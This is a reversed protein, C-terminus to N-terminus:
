KRSWSDICELLERKFNEYSYYGATNKIEDIDWYYLGAVKLAHILDAKNPHELFGHIYPTILELPGGEAVCVSPKGSAMAELPVLGFDEDISLAVIGKSRAYLDILQDETVSGLFKVNDPATDRLYEYGPYIVGAVILQEDPLERFIEILLDTRKWKDVRQVALWYNQAPENRYKEIHVCPYIVRSEVGYTKYVRNRVNHSIVAINHICLKVFLRDIPRLISSLLKIHFPVLYRMDYFARRPTTMYRMYPTKPYLLRFWSVADDLYIIFEAEPAKQKFPNILIGGTASVIDRIWRQEGGLISM